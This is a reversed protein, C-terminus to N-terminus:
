WRSSIDSDAVQFMVNNEFGETTVVEAELIYSRFEESMFIQQFISNMYCTSGLNILGSYEQPKSDTGQIEINWDKYLSTRWKGKNIIKLFFSCVQSRIAQDKSTVSMLFDFFVSRSRNNQCVPKKNQMGHQDILCISILNMLAEENKAAWAELSQKGWLCVTLFRLMNMMVNEEKTDLMTGILNDWIENFDILGILLSRRTEDDCDSIISSAVEFYYESSPLRSYVYLLTTTYMPALIHLFNEESIDRNLICKNYTKCFLSKITSSKHQVLAKKYLDSWDVQVMSELRVKSFLILLNEFHLLASEIRNYLDSHYLVTQDDLMYNLICLVTNFYSIKTSELFTSFVGSSILYDLIPFVGQIVISVTSFAKLDNNDIRTVVKALEEAQGSKIFQSSFDTDKKNSLLKYLVNMYYLVKKPKTLDTYKTINMLEPILLIDKRIQKNNPIMSLLMWIKNSADIDIVDFYDNFIDNNSIATTMKKRLFYATNMRDDRVFGIELELDFAEKKTAM